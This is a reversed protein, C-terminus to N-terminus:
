CWARATHWPAAPVAARQQRIGMTPAAQGALPVWSMSSPPSPITRFHWGGPGGLNPGPILLHFQRACEASTGDNKDRGPLVLRISDQLVDVSLGAAAPHAPDM